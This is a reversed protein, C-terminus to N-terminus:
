GGGQPAQSLALPDTQSGVKELTNEVECMVNPLKQDLIDNAIHSKKTYRSNNTRHSISIWLSSVKPLETPRWELRPRPILLPKDATSNTFKKRRFM